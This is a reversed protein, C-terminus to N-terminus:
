KGMTLSRLTAFPQAGGASLKLPNCTVYERIESLESENRIIHEYYNRQWVPAGPSNKLKNIAKTSVYKFYAIVQGLTPARDGRGKTKQDPRPSGAGVVANAPETLMLVAHIHDPMIVFEDLKVSPFHKPIRLWSSNVIEGLDSLCVDNGLIEGYIAQKGYSCVTVFYAGPRSYDYGRLRVSRRHHKDPNFKM